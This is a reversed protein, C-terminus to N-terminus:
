VAALSTREVRGQQLRHTCFDRHERYEDSQFYDDLAVGIMSAIGAHTCLYRTFLELLRLKPAREELWLFQGQENVEFFTYDGEATVAMDLCGFSLDMRRMFELIRASVSAPMSEYRRIDMRKMYDNRWDIKAAEVAQSDIKACYIDTGMVVVRLEYAKDVYSQYIGPCARISEPAKLVTRDILAAHQVASGAGDAWINQNYPKFIVKPHRSLFIEVEGPDNTILTDPTTLGVDGAVKLQNTKLSGSFRSALSNVAHKARLAVLGQLSDAFAALELQVAGIDDAHIASFDFYSRNHRRMWVCSLDSLDIEIRRQQRQCHWAIVGMDERITAFGGAVMDYIDLIEARVGHRKLAWWVANAHADDLRSMILIVTVEM